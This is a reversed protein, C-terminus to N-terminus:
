KKVTMQDSVGLVGPVARALTVAEDVQAQTDMVGTLRVNSDVTVVAVDFGRGKLATTVLANVDADVVAATAAPAAAPAAAPEPAKSCAVMALALASCLALARANNSFNTDM